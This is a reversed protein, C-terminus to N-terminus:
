RITREQYFGKGKILITGQSEKNYNDKAKTGCKPCVANDKESVWLFDSWEYKCKPCTLQIKHVKNIKKYDEKAM